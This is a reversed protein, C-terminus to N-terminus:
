GQGIKVLSRYLKTPDGTSCIAKLTDLVMQDSIKNERRPRQKPPTAIVPSPAEAKSGDVGRQAGPSVASAQMKGAVSPTQPREITDLTAITTTPQTSDQDKLAPREILITMQDDMPKTPPNTNSNSGAMSASSPPAPAARPNEFALASLAPRTSEKSTAKIRIAQTGMGIKDDVDMGETYFQMIARAAQPHQNVDNDSIGNDNLMKNWELPLGTYEGTQDDFGVHTLHVPDFPTGIEGGTSPLPQGPDVYPSGALGTAKKGSSGGGFASTMTSWLGSTKKVRSKGGPSSTGSGTPSVVPPTLGESESNVFPSTSGSPLATKALGQLGATSGKRSINGPVRGTSEPTNITKAVEDRSAQRPTQRGPDLSANVGKAADTEHLPSSRTPRGTMPSRHDPLVNLTPQGRGGAKHGRDDKSGASVAEFPAQLAFPVPPPQVRGDSRVSKEANIPSLAKTDQAKQKQSITLHHVSEEFPIRSQIPVVNSPNTSLDIPKDLYTLNKGEHNDKTLAGMQPKEKPESESTSTGSSQGMSLRKRVADLDDHDGDLRGNGKLSDQQRDDIQGDRMDGGYDDEDEEDLSSISGRDTGQYFDVASGLTGSTLRNKAKAAPSFAASTSSSSQPPPPAPRM